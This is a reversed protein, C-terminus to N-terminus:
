EALRAAADLLEEPTFGSAAVKALIQERAERKRRLLDIRSSLEAEHAKKRALLTDGGEQQARETAQAAPENSSPASDGFLRALAIRAEAAARPDPSHSKDKM